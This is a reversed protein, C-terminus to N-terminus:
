RRTELIIITNPQAGKACYYKEATFSQIQSDDLYLIENAADAITKFCNDLDPRNYKPIAYDSHKKGMMSKPRAFFFRVTLKVPGLEPKEGRQARLQQRIRNLKERFEKPM